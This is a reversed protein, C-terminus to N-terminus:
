PFTFFDFEEESDELDSMTLSDLDVVGAGENSKKRKYNHSRRNLRHVRNNFWLDIVPDASFSEM